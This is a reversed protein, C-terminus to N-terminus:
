QTRGEAAGGCTLGAPHHASFPTPSSGGGAATHAPLFAPSSIHPLRTALRHFDGPLLQGKWKTKRRFKIVKIARPFRRNMDGSKKEKHPFRSEETELGHEPSPSLQLSRSGSQGLIVRELLFRVFQAANPKERISDKRSSEFFRTGHYM